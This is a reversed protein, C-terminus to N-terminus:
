IKFSQWKAKTAPKLTKTKFDQPSRKVYLKASRGGYQDEDVTQTSVSSVKDDRDWSNSHFRELDKKTSQNDSEFAKENTTANEVADTREQLMSEYETKPILM